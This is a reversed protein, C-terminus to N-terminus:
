LRRGWRPLSAPACLRLPTEESDPGVEIQIRGRPLLTVAIEILGDQRNGEAGQGTVQVVYRRGSRWARRIQGVQHGEEPRSGYWGARRGDYLFISGARGCPEGEWVYHGPAIPLRPARGQQGAAPAAVASATLVASIVTVLKM